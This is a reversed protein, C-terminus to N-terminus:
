ELGEMAFAEAFTFWYWGGISWKGPKGTGSHDREIAWEIWGRDQLADFEDMM